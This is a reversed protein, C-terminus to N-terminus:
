QGVGSLASIAGLTLGIAIVGLTALVVKAAAGRPAGDLYTRINV